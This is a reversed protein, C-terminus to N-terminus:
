RKPCREKAFILYKAIVPLNGSVSAVITGRFHAPHKYAAIIRTGQLIFPFFIFFNFTAVFAPYHTDTSWNSDLNNPKIVWSFPLSVLLLYLVVVMNM